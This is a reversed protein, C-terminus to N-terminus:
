PNGEAPPNNILPNDSAPPEIPPISELPPAVPQLDPAPPQAPQTWYRYALTWVSSMFVNALTGFLLGLLVAILVTPGVIVFLGTLFNGNGQRFANISSAAGLGITGCLIPTLICAFVIGAVIAVGILLLV